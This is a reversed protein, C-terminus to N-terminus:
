RVRPPDPAKFRYVSVTMDKPGLWNPYNRVQHYNRRLYSGGLSGPDMEALEPDSVVVWLDIGDRVASEAQSAFYHDAGGADDFKDRAIGVVDIPEGDGRRVLGKLNLYYSLSPGNTSLVRVRGRGERQVYHSADRWMPRDGHQRAYYLWAPGLMDLFVIGFPVLRMTVGRLGVGQIRDMLMRVTLAALLLFAPLTYFAYQATTKFIFSSAFALAVTPVVTWCALFIAAPDGRDFLWLVGGFAAVLIPVRVFFVMTQLLHTLSFDPKNRQFVEVLPLLIPTLVLLLGLIAMPLWREVGRRQRDRRGRLVVFGLFGGLLLFASPHCLGALVLSVVGGGLLWFSRRKWGVYFAGASMLGFLLVMSYSRANQSWYIHWPHVALLAAALLAAGRGVFHRGVLALAPISLIGFFAFPLRLWGEGISPLVPHLWRLVLYSLPYRANESRWFEDDTKLVDRFTHAEDVWLSWEDLRYLRLMAALLTIAVLALLQRDTFPLETSLGSRPTADTPASMGTSTQRMM